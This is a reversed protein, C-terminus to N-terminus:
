ELAKGTVVRDRGEAKARYLATDVAHLIEEVTAGHEPFVAVGVSLTLAGLTQGRDQVTLLKFEERLQEARQQTVEISAEPLILVFEEGGYRCAIDEGRTRSRLFGGLKRLLTDGAAHGYTDNFVKFKDLDLM